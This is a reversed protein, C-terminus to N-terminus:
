RSRDLGARLVAPRSVRLQRAIDSQPAQQGAQGGRREQGLGAEHALVGAMVEAALRDPESLFHSYIALTTRGGGGHGLRGAVTALDVGSTLLTTAVFHRVDHLRVPIGESDRLKSFRRTWTEPRWPKLAM